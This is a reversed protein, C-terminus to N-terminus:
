MLIQLRRGNQPSLNRFLCWGARPATSLGVCCDSAPEVDTCELVDDELAQLAVSKRM